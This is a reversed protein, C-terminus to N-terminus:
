QVSDGAFVMPIYMPGYNVTWLFSGQASDAGDTVIVNITYIGVGGRIRGSVLGSTVDIQLGEPLGTASYTLADGDADAASLQLSIIDGTKSAQDVLSELTPAQNPTEIPQDDVKDVADPDAEWTVEDVGHVDPFETENELGPLGRINDLGIWSIGMEEMDQVRAKRDGGIETAIVPYSQRLSTISNKMAALEGAAEPWEYPHFGVSANSYDIDGGQGVAVSIDSRNNAFSWAIIHTNPAVARIQQYLEQEFDVLDSPYSPVSWPENILEYIVHTHDKYRPAVTGWWIRADGKDHGLVPHYDIVIYMGLDAAIQVMDDMIQLTTKGNPHTYSLAYCRYADPGCDNGPGNFWNQPPRSMMLRVTNLRYTDRIVRWLDKDYMYERSWGNSISNPDGEVPAFVVHEGRLPRDNDAVLNGDVIKVHGREYGVPTPAAAEAPPIPTTGPTQITTAEAYFRANTIEGLFNSQNDSNYTYCGVNLPAKSPPQATQVGSQNAILQGNYYIRVTGNNYSVVAHGWEGVPIDAEGVVETGTFNDSYVQLVLEKKSPDDINEEISFLLGRSGEQEDSFLPHRGQAQSMRFQFEATWNGAFIDASDDITTCTTGDFVEVTGVFEEYVAKPTAPLQDSPKTGQEIEVASDTISVDQLQGSLYWRNENNWEYCALNINQNNSAVPGVASQSASEAGNVWLTITGGELKVAIHTWKGVPVDADSELEVSASGDKWLEIALKGEFIEIVVGREENGQKTMIPHREQAELPRVWASFTWNNALLDDTEEIVNCSGNYDGPSGVHENYDGDGTPPPTASPDPTATPEPTVAPIIEKASDFLYLKQLQGELYHSNSGNYLYCGIQTPATSSRMPQINEMRGVEEGNMHITVTGDEFTATLETWTNLPVSKNADVNVKNDPSSYIQLGPKGQYIDFVLGRDGDREQSIIIHREKEQTLYVQTSITFNGTFINDANAFDVCRNGEFTQPADVFFEFDADSNGGKGAPTETTSPEPTPTPPASSPASPVTLTVGLSAGTYFTTGQMQGNLYYDSTPPAAPYCGLRVPQSNQRIDSVGSQSQVIHGDQELQITGTATNYKAVVFVWQNIPLSLEASVEHRIGLEEYAQFYLKGEESGFWFGRQNSTEHSVFPHRGVGNGVNVYAAITFSEALLNQADDFSVCYNGNFLEPEEFYEYVTSTQAHFTSVVALIALLAISTCYAFRKM